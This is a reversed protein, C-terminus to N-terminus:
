RRAVRVAGTGPGRQITAPRPEAGGGPGRGCYQPVEDARPPRATRVSAKMASYAEPAPRLVATCRPGPTIIRRPAAEGCIELVRAALLRAAFYLRPLGAVEAPGRTHAPWRENALVFLRSLAKAYEARSLWKSSPDEARRNAFVWIHDLVLFTPLDAADKSISLLSFRGLERLMEKAERAEVDWLAAAEELMFQEPFFQLVLFLPRLEERVYSFSVDMVRQLEHFASHQGIDVTLKSLYDLREKTSRYVEDQDLVNRLVGCVITLALPSVGRSGCAALVKNEEDTSLAPKTESMLSRLMHRGDDRKLPAVTTKHAGRVSPRSSLWKQGDDRMTLMIVAPQLDELEQLVGSEFWHGEKCTNSPHKYPDDANDLIVLADRMQREDSLGAGQWSAEIAKRVLEPTDQARLEVFLIASFREGAGSSVLARGVSKVLETKGLGASGLVLHYVGGWGSM